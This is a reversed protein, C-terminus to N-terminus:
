VIGKSLSSVLTNIIDNHDNKDISRSIIKEAGSITLMAIQKCLDERAQKRENDIQIKAQTLIKRREKEASIKAEEIIELYHKNAMEIISKADKKAEQLYHNATLEAKKIDKKTREAFALNETIEKQRTEIASILPPWVYHMCFWVFLIFAIAQGLITANINM